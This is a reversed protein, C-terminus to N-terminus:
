INQWFFSFPVMDSDVLRYIFLVLTLLFVILTITQRISPKLCRLTSSLLPMQAFMFYFSIREAAQVGVYRMIYIVMGVVTMYFFMIFTKDKKKEGSFIIAALIIIVYIGLAVFGGGQVTNEYEREFLINGVTAISDSLFLAVGSFIGVLLINYGKLSLGYLFYVVLFVIATVHYQMALAVLLAFPIFKRKKAFEVAFLCISMAVSQRLGQAMFVYLGLTVYMLFGLVVDECNKYIFRCVAVSFLLGSFVFAFQPSTFIHSLGWVSALYGSTMKSGDMFDLLEGLSKGSLNRWNNYYNYSDQSGVYRSRLAFMLFLAVGCVFLFWKKKQPKANIYKKNSIDYGAAIAIPCIALILYATM